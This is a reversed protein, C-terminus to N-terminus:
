ESGSLGDTQRTDIFIDGGHAISLVPEAVVTAQGTVTDIIFLPSNEVLIHEPSLSLATAYLVDFEDFMIGMVEANPDIMVADLGTITAAHEAAGTGTDIIYLENEVTGWMTGLSDFTFDMLKDVGTDGILTLQGSTKDISYLNSDGRWKEPGNFGAVYATGDPGIDFAVVNIPNPFGVPAVEATGRNIVMLQSIASHSGRVNALGYLTGDTDFAMSAIVTFDPLGFNGVDTFTGTVTDLVGLRQHRNHPTYIKGALQQAIDPEYAAAHAMSMEMQAAVTALGTITDVIFLPSTEILSWATAYLVDNEDFMIGMIASNPDTMAADVGTVTAAHQAAGTSTDIVYLENDTVNHGASGWMTGSSDIAFDMLRDVGTDGILTLQGTTKDISYLNSDGIWGGAPANFGAVYATGDSGIDFAMVNIANPFGVPTVQATEKDIIVLQSLGNPAGRRNSLGYLTGDIDLAVAPILTSAPLEFSGVDTFTGTVTDIAGLRQHREHPTYITGALAAQGLFLISLLTLGIKRFKMLRKM